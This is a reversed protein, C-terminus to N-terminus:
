KLKDIWAYLKARNVIRFVLSKALSYEVLYFKM